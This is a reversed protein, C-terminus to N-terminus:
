KDSRDESDTYGCSYTEQDSIKKAPAYRGVTRGGPDHIRKEDRDMQRCSGHDDRENVLDVKVLVSQEGSIGSGVRQSVKERM